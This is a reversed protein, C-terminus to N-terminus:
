GDDAAFPFAQSNRCNVLKDRWRLHLLVQRGPENVKLHVSECTDIVVGGCNRALVHRAGDPLHESGANSAEERGDNRSGLLADDRAKTVKARRPSLEQAM